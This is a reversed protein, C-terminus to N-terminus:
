YLSDDDDEEDNDFLGDFVGAQKMRFGQYSATKGFRETDEIHVRDHEEQNRFDWLISMSNNSNNRDKHHVM